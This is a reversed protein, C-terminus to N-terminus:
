QGGGAVHCSDRLAQEERRTPAPEDPLLLMNENLHVTNFM